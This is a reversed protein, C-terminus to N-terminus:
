LQLSQLIEPHLVVFLNVEETVREDPPRTCEGSDGVRIDTAEEYKSPFAPEPIKVVTLSSILRSWGKGVRQCGLDYFVVGETSEQEHAPEEM